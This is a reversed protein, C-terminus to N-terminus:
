TSRELIVELVFRSGAYALLLLGTGAYLFRVAKRGRWGFRSRGILLVAFVAWSLLSFVTKHDWRWANGAGYLSDGFFWGACLTASLLVFGATAFRFTLRELTLLPLGERTDTAQRISKEARQMMWAHAVAAAFLGYSAVGLAWHLPLWASANVHLPTGPFLAALMVVAAGLIALTWRTRMQPFWHQELVYFTLMLWVTVSLSPAFGFRLGQEQPTFLVALLGLGHLAWPGWLLRHGQALALRPGILATLAYAAATPLSLWWYLSLDSALIM